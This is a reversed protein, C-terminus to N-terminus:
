SGGPVLGKEMAIRVLGASNRVGLKQFLNRRHGDVTKPSLELAEAIDANTYEHAILRLVQLERDSLVESEGNQSGKERERLHRILHDSAAHSFYLEGQAVTRIGDLLEEEEANKFVYGKAGADMMQEITSGEEHMTLGLVMVDPYERAIRETAGIGSSEKLNIDMLVVDAPLKQLLAFLNAEDDAEGVVDIDEEDELLSRMGSRFIRHDDVLILRVRM